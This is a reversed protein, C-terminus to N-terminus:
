WDVWGSMRSPPYVHVIIISTTTTITFVLLGTTLLPYIRLDETNNTKRNKRLHM